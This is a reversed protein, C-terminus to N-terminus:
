LGVHKHNAVDDAALAQWVTLGFKREHFGKHISAQGVGAARLPKCFMHQLSAMNQSHSAGM